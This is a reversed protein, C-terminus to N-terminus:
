DTEDLHRLNAVADDAAPSVGSEATTQWVERAGKVDGLEMYVQGLLLGAPPWLKPHRNVVVERFVAAANRYRGFWYHLLGLHFAAEVRYQSHGSNYAIELHHMSLGTQNMIAYLQGLSSHAATTYDAHEAAIAAQFAQIADDYDGREELLCGLIWTAKPGQEAHGSESAERLLFIVDDTIGDRQHQRIALQVMALPSWEASEADIAQRNLNDIVAADADQSERIEAILLAAHARRDPDGAELVTEIQAIAGADDGEHMRLLGINFRARPAMEADGAEVITMWAREAGALDGEDHRLTALQFAAEISHDGDNCEICKEFAAAAEEKMGVLLATYGQDFLVEARSLDTPEIEAAESVRVRRAVHEMLARMDESEPLGDDLDAAIEALGESSPRM